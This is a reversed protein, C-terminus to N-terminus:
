HFREGLVVSLSSNLENLCGEHKGAILACGTSGTGLHWRECDEKHTEEKAKKYEGDANTDGGGDIHLLAVFHFAQQGRATHPGELFEEVTKFTIMM